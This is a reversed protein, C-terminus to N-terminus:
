RSKGAGAQPYIKPLEFEKNFLDLVTQTFHQPVVVCFREQTESCAIIKPELNEIAVNVLDLDVKIGLGAAVALESTVCAIGGAGLDKFGIEVNAEKCRKLLEKIAQSLVRKLFPDHVQVAGMNSMEDEKDLTASSFSAGGFGTADTSKGFLIVDYPEKKAQDPVYSHIIDDETILGVAAVNVLCNDNYSEHYCTEGGLVPVGLPNAYDFVKYLKKHLKM